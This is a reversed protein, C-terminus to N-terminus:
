LQIIPRSPRDLAPLVYKGEADAYVWMAERRNTIIAWIWTLPDYYDLRQKLLRSHILIASGPIEQGKNVPENSLEYAFIRKEADIVVM